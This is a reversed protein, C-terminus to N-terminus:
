LILRFTGFDYRKIYSTYIALLCYRWFSISEMSELFYGSEVFYGLDSRNGRYIFFVTTNDKANRLEGQYFKSKM